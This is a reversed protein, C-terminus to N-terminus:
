ALNLGIGADERRGIIDVEAEILVDALTVEGLIIVEDDCTHEVVSRYIM